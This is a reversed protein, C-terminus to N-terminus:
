VSKKYFTIWPRKILFQINQIHVKPECPFLLWNIVILPNKKKHTHTNVIDSVINTPFFEDSMAKTYLHSSCILNFDNWTKMM